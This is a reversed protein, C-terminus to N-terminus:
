NTTDSIEKIAGEVQQGFDKLANQFSNLGKKLKLGQYKGILNNIKEMTKPNYAEPNKDISESILAIKKDAQEWEKETYKKYNKDVNEVIGELKNVNRASTSIGDCSSFILINVFLFVWSIKKM